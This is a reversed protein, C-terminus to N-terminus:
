AGYYWKSFRVATLVLVAFFMVIISPDRTKPHTWGLLGLVLCLAVVHLSNDM